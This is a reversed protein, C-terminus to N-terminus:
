MVIGGAIRAGGGGLAAPQDSYNDGGAHIIVAHYKLDWATLGKVLLSGKATGDPAVVLKPLDGKHGGGAPGLHKGSRAPDFHGGAGLGPGVTGDPATASVSAKEHVHFGHEGPPLGELNLDIRLGQPTDVFVITGLNDATGDTTLKFISVYSSHVSDSFLGSDRGSAAPLCYSVPPCPVVVRCANAALAGAGAFMLTFLALSLGALLKREM